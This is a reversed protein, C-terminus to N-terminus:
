KVNPWCWYCKSCYSNNLKCSNWKSANGLTTAVKFTNEDVKIVFYTTGASGLTQNGSATFKDGTIFGHNALTITENATSVGTASAQAKQIRYSLGTDRDTLEFSYVDDRSFTMRGLEEGGGVLTQGPTRFIGSGTGLGLAALAWIM